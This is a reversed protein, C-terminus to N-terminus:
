LCIYKVQNLNKNNKEQVFLTGYTHQGRLSSKSVMEEKVFWLKAALIEIFASINFCQFPIDLHKLLFL